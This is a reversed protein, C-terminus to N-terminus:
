EARREVDVPWWGLGEARVASATQGEARLLTQEDAAVALWLRHRGPAGAWDGELRLEFSGHAAAIRGLTLRSLRGDAGELFVGLVRPAETAVEARLRLTLRGERGVILREAPPSGRTPSEGGEIELQYRSHASSPVTAVVAVLGAALAAAAAGWVLPRRGRLSILNSPPPLRALVAEVEGVATQRSLEELLARAERDTALRAEVAQAAEPSLKGARYALLVGDDVPPLGAAPGPPIGRLM